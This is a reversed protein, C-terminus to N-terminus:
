IKLSHISSKGLEKFPLDSVARKLYFTVIVTRKLYFTVIVTRKLHFTM